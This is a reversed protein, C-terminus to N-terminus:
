FKTIKKTIVNKGTNMQLFYIGTSLKSVDLHKQHNGIAYKNTPIVGVKKGNLSILQISIEASQKLNFSITLHEKAPNPFVNFEVVQDKNEVATPIGHIVVQENFFNNPDDILISIEFRRETEEPIHPLTDIISGIQGGQMVEYVETAYGELNFQASCNGSIIPTNTFITNNEPLVFISSDGHEGWFFGSSNRIWISEKEDPDLDVISAGTNNGLYNCIDITTTTSYKKTVGNFISDTPYNFYNNIPMYPCPNTSDGCYIEEVFPDISIHLVKYDEVLQLTTGADLMGWGNSEDYGV